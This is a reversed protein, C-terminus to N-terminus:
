LYVDRFVCRTVIKGLISSCGKWVYFVCSIFVDSLFVENLLFYWKFYSKSIHHARLCCQVSTPAARAPFGPGGMSWTPFGLHSRQLSGPDARLDGGKMGEDGSKATWPNMLLHQLHQFWDSNYSLFHHISPNDRVSSATMNSDRKLFLLWSISTWKDLSAQHLRIPM